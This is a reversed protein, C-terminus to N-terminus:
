MIIIILGLQSRFVLSGAGFTKLSLSFWDAHVNSMPKQLTYVLSGTDLTLLYGTQLTCQVTAGISVLSGAQIYM